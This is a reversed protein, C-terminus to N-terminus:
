KHKEEFWTDINKMSDYYPIFEQNEKQYSLLSDKLLEKNEKFNEEIVIVKDKPLTMMFTEIYDEEIQLHITIM